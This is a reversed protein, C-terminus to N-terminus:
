MSMAKPSNLMSKMFVTQDSPVIEQKPKIDCLQKQLPLYLRNEDTTEHRPM